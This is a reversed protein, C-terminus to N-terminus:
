KIGRFYTIMDGSHYLGITPCKYNYTLSPVDLCIIDTVSFSVQFDSCIAM